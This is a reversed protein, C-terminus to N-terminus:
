NVGLRHYFSNVAPFKNMVIFRQTGRIGIALHNTAIWSQIRNFIVATEMTVVVIMMM